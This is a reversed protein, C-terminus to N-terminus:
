SLGGFAGFPLIRFIARGLVYREDVMGIESSRSDLSNNRHDGMVFIHGEPVTQPFTIDYRLETGRGYEDWVYPEDLLVGDVSVTGAEFDIDVTQGETAIVRKIIPESDRNRLQNEDNTYNRSIVVIDGAKPEYFLNSIIVKDDPHLTQLMSSGQVGVVRFVLTFLVVVAIVAVVVADIWDYIERVLDRKDGKKGGPRKVGELAQPGLDLEAGATSADEKYMPGGPATEESGAALSNQSRQAQASAEGAAQMSEKERMRSGAFTNEEWPGEGQLFDVPTEGPRDAM